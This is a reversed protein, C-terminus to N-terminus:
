FRADVGHYEITGYADGPLIWVLSLRSDNMNRVGHVANGPVFVM